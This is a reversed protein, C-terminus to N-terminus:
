PDGRIEVVDVGELDLGELLDHLLM